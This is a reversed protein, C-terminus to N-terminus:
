ISMEKIYLGGVEEDTIKDKKQQKEEEKKRHSFFYFYFNFLPILHIHSSLYFLILNM